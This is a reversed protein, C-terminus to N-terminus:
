YNLKLDLTSHHLYDLNLVDQPNDGSRDSYLYVQPDQVPQSFMRHICSTYDCSALTHSALWQSLAEALIHLYLELATQTQCHIPQSVM